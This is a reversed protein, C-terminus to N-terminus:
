AKQINFLSLVKAIKFQRKLQSSVGVLKLPLQQRIRKETLKVLFGLARNDIYTCYTFDLACEKQHIIPEIKKLYADVDLEHDLRGFFRINVLHHDQQVSDYFSSSDRHQRLRSILDHLYPCVSDRVLDYVRHLRMLQAIDASLNICYLQKKERLARMWTTIILGMGTLDIHRVDEFDFLLVDQSFLDDSADSIERSAQADLRPTLKVVAITQHPSLFLETSPLTQARKKRHFLWFLIRSITHYLILPAVMYSFKAADYLYRKWLRSPEQILRYFWELGGNRIWYPARSVVGTLREFAGGVGISVPVHLRNKVRNYWIEQKPNGLNLFLIDPATRNIHEVLLLDKEEAQHLELGQIAVLPFATGAIKLDPYLAQLYLTCLKLVKESGGLLFCSKKREGLKEALKALLDIGTVREKLPEGLCRSLWLLPMGDATAVSAERFIKLLEPYRAEGWNWSHALALFDSNITAVYRPRLDKHHADILGLIRQVAEEMNVQCIPVGLIAIPLPNM